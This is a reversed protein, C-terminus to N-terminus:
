FLKTFLPPSQIGVTNDSYFIGDNNLEVPM